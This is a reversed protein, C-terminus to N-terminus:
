RHHYNDIIKVKARILLSIERCLYRPYMVREDGQLLSSPRYPSIIHKFHTCGAQPRSHLILFLFLGPSGTHTHTHTHPPLFIQYPHLQMFIGRGKRVAPAIM